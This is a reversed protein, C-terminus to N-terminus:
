LIVTPANPTGPNTFVPAPAGPTGGLIWDTPPAGPTGGLVWVGNLVVFDALAPLYEASVRVRWYWLRYASVLEVQLDSMFRVPTPATPKGPTVALLGPLNMSVWGDWANANVWSIWTPYLSQAIVFVLSIQHPLQRQMRRQRTNGAEMPTRVLGASLVASHGEIRSACPFSQPYPTTM